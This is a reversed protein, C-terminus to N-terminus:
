FPADDDGGVYTRSATYDPKPQSQPERKPAQWESKPVVRKIKVTYFESGNSAIKPGWLAVEFQGEVGELELDRALFGPSGQSNYRNKFLNTTGPKRSFTNM